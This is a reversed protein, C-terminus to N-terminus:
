GLWRIRLLLHYELTKAFWYIAFSEIAATELWFMYHEFRWPTFQLVAISLPLAIMATGAVNYATKFNRRAREHPIKKVREKSYRIAVIGILLFFVIASGRHILESVPMPVWAVLIVAAGAINLLRNEAKSLGHFLFLFVGIACLMGVMVDRSSGVDSTYFRSISDHIWYGGRWVLLPPLFAAILGIGLSLYLYSRAAQAEFVRQFHDQDQRDLYARDPPIAEFAGQVNAM